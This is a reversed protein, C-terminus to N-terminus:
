PHLSLRPSMLGDPYIMQFEVRTINSSGQPLKIKEDVLESGGVNRTLELMMEQGRFFRLIVASVPIEQASLDLQVRVGGSSLLSVESSSLIQDAAGAVVPFTTLAPVSQPFPQSPDDNQRLTVAALPVDSGVTVSGQMEGAQPVADFIENIFRPLHLGQGLPVNTTAIQNFALDWLSLVVTALGGGDGENNGGAPSLAPPNVLALGTNKVGLSDLFLSFNSLATVAPVGAEYLIVGTPANIRTFVATGGVGAAATLRAYGVQLTGTGTTAVSLSGGKVVEFDFVSDTQRGLTLVMPTGDSQFLEVQVTTADGTNVFIMETRFQITAVQGNAVQPFYSVVQGWAPTAALVLVILATIFLPM